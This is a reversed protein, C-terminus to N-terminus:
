EYRLTDVPNSLAAKVAQLSVTIAAISLAILVAILGTAPQPDIRYAFEQLFRSMAFYALPLAVLGAALVLKLFDRSLLLIINQLSAGLVKRVGIEKTRQEATFASLGFLGLCAILIAIVSFTTVVQLAQEEATYLQAVRDELFEYQFPYGPMYKKFTREIYAITEPMKQASIKVSIHSFFKPWHMMVMPAIREHLSSIHFDQVVGIITGEIHYIGTPLKTGIVQRPSSAGLREALAENVIFAEKFDTSFNQSFNRGALLKLGYDNLYDYDVFNINISFREGGDYGKPYASTDFVIDSIPARLGATAALVNPHSLLDHKIVESKKRLERDFVPVVVMRDMNFGMDANRLFSLQERTILTCFVLIISIMFQTIVLGKRLFLAWRSRSEVARQGKIVAVPKFGSLVFAPYFGSFIGILLTLGLAFGGIAFDQRLGFRVETGVLQSFYPLMVELLALALTLAVLATLVSEGIFQRILQLKFAGLVKRVGVEKARRGSRATALNIFNICAILLIFLGITSIIVLHSIFNGSQMEDENHAYLHIDALPQYLLQRTLNASKKMHRNTFDAAREQFSFLTTSEPLQVYTYTDIFMAWQDLTTGLWDETLATFPLVYNFLLHSNVPVDRIVASVSFDYKNDLRIQQGIPNDDGFYKSALSETLVIDNPRSLLNTSDGRVVPYTFMQFFDRDAFIGNPEFIKKEAADFLVDDPLYIRSINQVEPYDLRFAPALPLPTQSYYTVRDPYQNEIGIRYIRNANAHFRDYNLEQRVYLTILLCCTLGIALGAINIISYAKFKTLNRYAIKFYNKLM